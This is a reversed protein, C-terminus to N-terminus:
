LSNQEGKLMVKANELDEPTDIGISDWKSVSTRIKYGWQLWRLQELSEALELNTPKLKSLEELIDARYAYIGIHKYFQHTEILNKDSIDRIYPIVARSFYLANGNESIVVKPINPDKLEKEGAIKKILTSIEVKSDIFSEILLNIQQPKIFPEDGQINIVIDPSYKETSRISNLAEACRDTGSKHAPSTMIVKGGFDSVVKEIRSDDTAVYLNDLVLSAQDYVLRILPKNDIMALPKGPFRLSDFRAPIIGLVKM